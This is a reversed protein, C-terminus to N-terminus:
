RRSSSCFRKCAERDSMIYDSTSWLYLVVNVDDPNTVIEDDWSDAIEKLGRLATQYYASGILLSADNKLINYIKIHPSTIKFPITVYDACESCFVTRSDYSDTMQEIADSLDYIHGWAYICKLRIIEDSTLTTMWGPGNERV